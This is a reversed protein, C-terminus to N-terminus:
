EGQAFKYSSPVQVKQGKPGYVLAIERHPTLEIAAPDGTQPKGGVYATLTHTADTKLGGISTATLQVNWEDFLQGLTYRKNTTPAEIHLVGTDDHTHLEALQQGSTAIGLNGPVPIKKGNVLVDLHAHFHKATGELPGISLGASRAGAVPDAPLPWPPMGTGKAPAPHPLASAKGNSSRIALLAGVALVAVVVGTVSFTIIWRIRERRREAARAAAIRERASQRERVKTSSRKKSSM